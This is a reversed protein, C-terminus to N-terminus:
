TRATTRVCADWSVWGSNTRFPARRIRPSMSRGGIAIDGGLSLSTVGALPSGNNTNLVASTTVWAADSTGNLSAVFASADGATNTYTTGGLSIQNSFTGAAIANGSSDLALATINNSANASGWHDVRVLAGSIANYRALFADATGVAAVSGAGFDVSGQFYGGVELNTGIALAPSQTLAGSGTFVRGWQIEGTSASVAVVFGAASGSSATTNSGITIGDTESGTFAVVGNAVAINTPTDSGTGGVTTAWIVNGDADLKAAVIDIGGKSVLMTSGVQITGEYQGLVYFSDGDTSIANAIAFPMAKGWLTDGTLGDLKAVYADYTSTDPSQLTVADLTLAGAFQGVAVVNGDNTSVVGHGWAPGTSVLQKTWLVEGKAGFLAGVKHNSSMTVSCAGLGKCDNTWGVFSGTSASQSLTVETGVDFKGTCLGATCTIGAPTSTISGVGSGRIQVTLEAQNPSTNTACTGYADCILSPDGCDSDMRCQPTVCAGDVSCM